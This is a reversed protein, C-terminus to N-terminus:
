HVALDIPSPSFPLNHKQQSFASEGKLYGLARQKERRGEGEGRREKGKRWLWHFGCVICEPVLEPCVGGGCHLINKCQHWSCLYSGDTLLGGGIQCGQAILHSSIVTGHLSQALSLTGAGWKSVASGGQGGSFFFFSFRHAQNGAESVSETTPM